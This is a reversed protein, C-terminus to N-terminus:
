QHSCHSGSHKEIRVRAKDNSGYWEATPQACASQRHDSRVFSAVVKYDRLGIECIRESKMLKYVQGISLSWERPEGALCKLM